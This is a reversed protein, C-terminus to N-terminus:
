LPSELFVPFHQYYRFYKALQDDPLKVGQEKAMSLFGESDQPLCRDLVIKEKPTIPVLDLRQHAPVRNSQLPAMRAAIAEWDAEKGAAVIAGGVTIMEVGDKHCCNLLPVFMLRTTKTEDGEMVQSERGSGALKHAMFTLLAEAMFEPFTDEAVDNHVGGETVGVEFRAPISDSGLFGEIQGLATAARTKDTETNTRRPRYNQRAANITVMLVSNPACKELILELDRVVSVELCGDYDMWSVLPRIWNPESFSQLVDTSKGRKIEISKYPQNFSARDAYEEFEISIMDRLGLIRHALRFDAFWMSGLGLYQYASLDVLPKASLLIDFVLKREIHKNYRLQYDIREFSPSSM